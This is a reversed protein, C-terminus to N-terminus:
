GEAPEEQGAFRLRFGEEIEPLSRNKTEPIMKFVFSFALVCLVAFVLFTWAGGIGELLPPFCMAVVFNMLWLALGAIGMGIGRVASPILESVLLWTAVSVASQQFVMFLGMLGLM